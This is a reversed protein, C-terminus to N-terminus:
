HHFIANVVADHFRPRVAKIADSTPERRPYTRNALLVVALDRDPDIWLSTGTFGLHGFSRPSFHRGSSSPQSPTDWGFTRTTGPPHPQPTTFLEVTECQALPAGGRLMCAAFTAVDLATGFLGAHGAVGGMVWANEDHVEGRVTRRRFDVDNETPPIRGQLSASPRFCTDRMDLPTFIERSCFTDLPEGTIRALLEGLVIYGIDSYEARSGPAALLPQTLAAAVLECRTTCTEFLRVYAPLGSSHALLHAVTVSRRRTDHQSALEPLVEVVPMDLTLLRREYLIMAAAATAIPKTLSALDYITDPTVVPADPEYTFRGECLLTAEGRHLVAASAGPFVRAAIAERLVRRANEFQQAARDSMRLKYCM